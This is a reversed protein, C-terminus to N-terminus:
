NLLTKKVGEEFSLPKFGLEKETVSINCTKNETVALLEKYTISPNKSILEYPKLIIRLLLLPFHIKFVKKSLVKSTIDIIRNFTVPNPGAVFYTRNATKLSLCKLIIGIVDDIHVPQLEYNGNGIVPAFPYKKIVNFLMGLSEKDGKGYIVTPRIIFYNLGSAKVINEAELKSSAYDNKNKLIVDCTSLHIFKKVNNEKCAKVLNRTGEINIREFEEKNSSNIIAALHIVTSVNKTAEKLYKVDTLDGKVVEISKGLDSDKRVLCRIKQNKSLKEILNKGVFGTAGTVLIM